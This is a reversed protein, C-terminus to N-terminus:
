MGDWDSGEFGEFITDYGTLAALYGAEDTYITSVALSIAPALLVVACIATLKRM